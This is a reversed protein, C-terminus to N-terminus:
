KALSKEANAVLQELLQRDQQWHIMDAANAYHPELIYGRQNKNRKFLTICAGRILAISLQVLREFTDPPLGERNKLPCWSSTVEALNALTASSSEAQLYEILRRPLGYDKPFEQRLKELFLAFEESFTPPM